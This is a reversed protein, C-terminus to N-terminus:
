PQQGWPHPGCSYIRVGSDDSKEVCICWGTRPAGNEDRYAPVQDSGCTKCVPVSCVTGSRPLGSPDSPDRPCASAGAKKYCEPSGPMVPATKETSGESPRRTCAAPMTALGALAFLFTGLNLAFSRVPWMM